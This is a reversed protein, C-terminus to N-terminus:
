LNLAQLREWDAMLCETVEPLPLQNEWDAGTIQQYIKQGIALITTPFDGTGKLIEFYDQARMAMAGSLCDGFTTKHAPVGEAILQALILQREAADAFFEDLTWEAYSGGYGMLVQEFALAMAQWRSAPKGVCTYLALWQLFCIRSGITRHFAPGGQSGFTQCFAEVLSSDM